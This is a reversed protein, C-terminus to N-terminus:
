SYLSIILALVAIALVASISIKIILSRVWQQKVESRIKERLAPKIKRRISKKTTHDTKAGDKDYIEKIKDFARKPKRTYVEKRMGFGMYGM